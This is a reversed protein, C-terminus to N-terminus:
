NMRTEDHFAFSFTGSFRKILETKMKIQILKIENLYTPRSECCAAIGKYDKPHISCGKSTEPIKSNNEHENRSRPQIKCPMCLIVSPDRSLEVNM